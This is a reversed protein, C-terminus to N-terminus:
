IKSNSRFALIKRQKLELYEANVPIVVSTINDATDFVKYFLM